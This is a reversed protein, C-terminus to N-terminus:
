RWDALSGRTLRKPLERAGVSGIMLLERENEWVVHSADPSWALTWESTAVGVQQRHSGDAHIAIVHWRNADLDPQFNLFALRRGDRSWTPRVAHQARALRRLAGGNPRVVYLDAGKFPGRQRGFAIWGGRSWAPDSSGFRTTGRLVRSRRTSIDVIVLAPKDLREYVISRGGPSWSYGAFLDNTSVNAEVLRRRGRGNSRVIWLDACVPSPDRNEDSQCQELLFAIWRGGPSWRPETIQTGGRVVIRRVLRGDSTRVVLGPGGVAAILRGDPSVVPATEHAGRGSLRRVGSGDPRVAFTEQHEGVTRAFVILSPPASAVASTLLAGATAVTLAVTLAVRNV